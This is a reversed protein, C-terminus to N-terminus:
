WKVAVSPCNLCLALTEICSVFCVLIESLHSRRNWSFVKGEGCRSSCVDHTHTHTHTHTRVSLFLTTLQVISLYIVCMLSSELCCWLNVVSARWSVRQVTSCCQATWHWDTRFSVSLDTIFCYLCELGDPRADMRCYFASIGICFSM